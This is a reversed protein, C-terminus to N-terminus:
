DGSMGAVTVGAQGAFALMRNISKIASLGVERDVHIENDGTQLVHLLKKLGNMAM